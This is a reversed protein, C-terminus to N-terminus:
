RSVPWLMPFTTRSPPLADHFGSYTASLYRSANWRASEFILRRFSRYKDAEKRQEKAEKSLANVAINAANVCLVERSQKVRQEVQKVLPDVTTRADELVKNLETGFSARSSEVRRM